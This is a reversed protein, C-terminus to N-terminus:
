LGDFLFDSLYKLHETALEKVDWHDYLVSTVLIAILQIFIRNPNDVVQILFVALEDLLLLLDLVKQLLDRRDARLQLHMYILKGVSLEFAVKQVEIRQDGVQGRVVLLM